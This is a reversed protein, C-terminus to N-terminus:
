ILSFIKKRCDKITDNLIFNFEDTDPKNFEHEKFLTGM